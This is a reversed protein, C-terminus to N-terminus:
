HDPRSRHGQWFSRVGKTILWGPRRLHERSASAVPKGRSQMSLMHAIEVEMYNELLSGLVSLPDPLKSGNVQQMWRTCKDLKNGVPAEGLAGSAMFLQNLEAHTHHQYLEDAVVAIVPNPIRM